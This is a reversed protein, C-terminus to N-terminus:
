MKNVNKRRTVSKSEKQFNYQEMLYEAVQIGKVVYGCGQLFSIFQDTVESWSVDQDNIKMVLMDNERIQKFVIM